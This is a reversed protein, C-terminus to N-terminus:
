YTSLASNMWMFADVMENSVCRSRFVRHPTFSFTQDMLSIIDSIDVDDDIKNVLLMIPINKEIIKQEINRILDQTFSIGECVGSKDTIVIAGHSKDIFDEWKYIQPWTYDIIRYNKDRFKLERILVGSTSVPPDKENYENCLFEVFSTKGVRPFGFIVVQYTKEEYSSVQSPHCGM